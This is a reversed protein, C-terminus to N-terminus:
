RPSVGGGQFPHAVSWSNTVYISNDSKKYKTKPKAKHKNKCKFNNKDYVFKCKCTLTDSEEIINCIMYKEKFIFDNISPSMLKIGFSNTGGCFEISNNIKCCFLDYFKISKLHIYLHISIGNKNYYEDFYYGDNQVFDFRKYSLNNRRYLIYKKKNKTNKITIYHNPYKNETKMM